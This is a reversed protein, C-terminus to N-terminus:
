GKKSKIKKGTKVSKRKGDKILKPYKALKKIPCDCLDFLPCMFEGNEAGCFGNQITNLDPRFCGPGYRVVEKPKEDILDPFMREILAMQYERTDWFYKEKGDSPDIVKYNRQDATRYKRKAPKKRFAGDLNHDKKCSRCVYIDQLAKLSGFKAIRKELVDPRVGKKDGCKTCEIRSPLGSENKKTM